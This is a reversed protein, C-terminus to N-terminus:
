AELIVLFSPVGYPSECVASTNRFTYSISTNACAYLALMLACVRVLAHACMCMCVHMCAHVRVSMCECTHLCMHMCVCLKLYSHVFVCLVCV